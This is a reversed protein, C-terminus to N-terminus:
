RCYELCPQVRDLHMNAAVSELTDGCHAEQKALVQRLVALLRGQHGMDLALAMAKAHDADQM